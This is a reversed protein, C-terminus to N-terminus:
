GRKSLCSRLSRLFYLGLCGAMSTTLHKELAGPPDGQGEPGRAAAPNRSGPGGLGTGPWKEQNQSNQLM